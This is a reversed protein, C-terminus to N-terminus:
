DNTNDEINCGLIESIRAKYKAPIKAGWRLWKSVASDSVGLRVAFEIQSIKLEMLRKKIKNM